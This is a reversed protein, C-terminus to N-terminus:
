RHKKRRRPAKGPSYDKRRLFLILSFATNLFLVLIGIVNVLWHCDRYYLWAFADGSLKLLGILVSTVCFRINERLLFVLCSAAMLFDIIFSSLLMGDPFFIFIPFLLLVEGCCILCFTQKSFCVPPCCFLYIAVILLDLFFWFVHILFGPRSISVLRCLDLFLAVTEWSFSSSVAFPHISLTGYQCYYVLIFIYTISWLVAQLVDFSINTKM